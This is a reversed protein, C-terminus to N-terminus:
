ISISLSIINLPVNSGIHIETTVFGHGNNYTIKVSGFRELLETVIIKKCETSLRTDFVLDNTRRIDRVNDDIIRTFDERTKRLLEIENRTLREKCVNIAIHDPFKDM